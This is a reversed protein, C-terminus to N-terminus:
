RLRIPHQGASCHRDISMRGHRTSGVSSVRYGRAANGSLRATIRGSGRIDADVGPVVIVGHRRDRIRETRATLTEPLRFNRGARSKARAETPPAPIGTHRVSQHPSL